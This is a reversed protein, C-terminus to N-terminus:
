EEYSVEELHEKLISLQEINDKYKLGESFLQSIRVYIEKTIPLSNIFYETPSPNYSLIVEDLEFSKSGIYFHLVNTNDFVFFLPYGESTALYYFSSDLELFNNNEFGEKNALFFLAKYDNLQTVEMSSEIPSVVMKIFPSTFIFIGLIVALFILSYYNSIFNGISARRSKM